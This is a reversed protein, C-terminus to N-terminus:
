YHESHDDRQIQQTKPDYFLQYQFRGNADYYNLYVIPTTRRAAGDFVFREYIARLQEEPVPPPTRQTVRLYLNEEIAFKFQDGYSSELVKLRAKDATSPAECAIAAFLVVSLAGLRLGHGVQPRRTNSRLRDLM